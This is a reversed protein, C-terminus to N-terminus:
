CTEEKTVQRLTSTPITENMKAGLQDTEQNKVQSRVSDDGRSARNSEGPSAETPIWVSRVQFGDRAMQQGDTPGYSLDSFSLLVHGHRWLCLVDTPGMVRDALVIYPCPTTALGEFM